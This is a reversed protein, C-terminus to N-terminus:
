ISVKAEHYLAYVKGAITVNDAITWEISGLARKKHSKRMFEQQFDSLHDNTTTDGKEVDDDGTAYIINKFLLNKNFKKGARDVRIIDIIVGSDKLDRAKQIARPKANKDSTDIPMDNDTIVMIRKTSRKTLNAAKTFLTSCTWLARDLQAHGTPESGIQKDFLSKNNSLDRLRKVLTAEPQDLPYL